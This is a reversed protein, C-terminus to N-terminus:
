YKESSTKFLDFNKQSSFYWDASNWTYVFDDSGKVPKSELFYAVPDYGRIAKDRATFVPSKQAQLTVATLVVAAILGYVKKM